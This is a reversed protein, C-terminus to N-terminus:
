QFRCSAWGSAERPWERFLFGWVQDGWIGSLLWLAPPYPSIPFHPSLFSCPLCPASSFKPTRAHVCVCVCECPCPGSADIETGLLRSCPCWPFGLCGCSLETRGTRFCRGCLSPWPQQIQGEPCILGSGLHGQHRGGAESVLKGHGCLRHGPSGGQQLHGPM